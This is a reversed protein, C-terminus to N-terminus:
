WADVSGECTVRCLALEGDSSQQVGTIAGEDCTRGPAPQVSQALRRLAAVYMDCRGLALDLRDTEDNHLARFSVRPKANDVAQRNRYGGSTDDIRYTM